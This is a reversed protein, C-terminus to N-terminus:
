SRTTRIIRIGATPSSSTGPTAGLEARRTSSNPRTTPSCCSAPSYTGDPVGTFTYQGNAATRIERFYILDPTFLIVRSGTIPPQPVSSQRVLGQVTASRLDGAFLLLGLWLFRRLDHELPQRPRGILEIGSADLSGNSGRAM